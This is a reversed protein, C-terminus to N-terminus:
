IVSNKCVKSCKSITHTIFLAILIETRVDSEPEEEQEADSDDSLALQEEKKTKRKRRPEKEKNVSPVKRRSYVM